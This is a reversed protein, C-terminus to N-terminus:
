VLFVFDRIYWCPSYPASTLVRPDMASKECLAYHVQMTDVESTSRKRLDTTISSTDLAFWHIWDPDQANHCDFEYQLEPRCDGLVCFVLAAGILQVSALSPSSLEHQNKKRGHWRYLLKRPPKQPM